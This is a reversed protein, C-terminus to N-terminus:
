DRRGFWGLLGFLTADVGIALFQLLVVDEMDCLRLLSPLLAVKLFSGTGFLYSYKRWVPCKLSPASRSVSM